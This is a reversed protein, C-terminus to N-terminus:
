TLKVRWKKKKYIIKNNKRTRRKKLRFGMVEHVMPGWIGAISWRPEELFLQLASVVVRGLVSFLKHDCDDGLLDLVQKENKLSASCKIAVLPPFRDGSCPTSFSVTALSGHGIEDGWVWDMTPYFNSYFFWWPITNFFFIISFLFFLFKCSITPFHVFLVM